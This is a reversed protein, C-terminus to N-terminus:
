FASKNFITNSSYRIQAWQLLRFIWKLLELYKIGLFTGLNKIFICIGSKLDIQQPCSFNRLKSFWNKIRATPFKPCSTKFLKLLNVPFNCAFSHALNRLVNVFPQVFTFSQPNGALSQFRLSRGIWLHPKSSCSM